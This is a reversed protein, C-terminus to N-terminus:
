HDRFYANMYIIKTKENKNNYHLLIAIGISTTLIKSGVAMANKTPM